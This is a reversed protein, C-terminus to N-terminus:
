KGNSPRGRQGCLRLPGDATAWRYGKAVLEDYKDASATSTLTMAAVAVALLIPVKM